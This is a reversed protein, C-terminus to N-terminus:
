FIAQFHRSMKKEGILARSKGTEIDMSQMAAHGRPQMAAHSCPQM